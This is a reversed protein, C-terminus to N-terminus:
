PCSRSVESYAVRWVEWTADRIVEGQDGEPTWATRTLYEEGNMLITDHTGLALGAEHAKNDFKLATLTYYRNTIIEKFKRTGTSIEQDSGIEDDNLPSSALTLAIRITNYYDPVQEYLYRFYNTTNRYELTLTYNDPCQEPQIVKLCNGVYKVANNNEKYIIPLYAFQDLAPTVFYGYVHFLTGGNVFTQFLQQDPVVVLNDFKDVLGFRWESFQVLNDDPETGELFNIYFWTVEGPVIVPKYSRSCMGNLPNAAIYSNQIDTM